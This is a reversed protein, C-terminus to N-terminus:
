NVAIELTSDFWGGKQEGNPRYGTWQGGWGFESPIGTGDTSLDKDFGGYFYGSGAWGNSNCGFQFNNDASPKLGWSTDIPRNSDAVFAARCLLVSTGDLDAAVGDLTAMFNSITTTYANNATNQETASVEWTTFNDFFGASANDDFCIEGAVLEGASDLHEWRLRVKTYPDPDFEDLLNLDGQDNSVERSTAKPTNRDVFDEMVVVTYDNGCRTPVCRGSPTMYEM